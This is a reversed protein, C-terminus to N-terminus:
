EIDGQGFTEWEEQQATGQLDLNSKVGIAKIAAVGASGLRNRSLDLFELHKVDPSAALAAAGEDSITGHRLDLVKLRKLLGSKIIEEVGKDGVDACRLRLHTLSTLHPSRCIARLHSLNIYPEEGGELAHPHCYLEQLNKLSENRALRDLPYVWGHYLLLVRLKPMPLAVVRSAEERFHAMLHLVEIDPMQRAYAAVLSGSTHCSYPCWTESYDDPECGGFRFARLHRLQPWRALVNGSPAYDEEEEEGGETDAGEEYEGAEDYALGHVTLDHVFRLQPSKILRRALDVNLNGIEVHTLLGHTFRYPLWGTGPSWEEAVSRIEPHEAWDGIWEAAHKALLDAEQKHLKKREAAPLSERELAIQVQMFEGYPDGRETLFDAYASIAGMDFPNAQIAKELAESESINERVTTEIYGKGIKEKILKDAAKRAEDQSAYSKTQTQGTTGIKGYNVTVDKGAVDVNWFKHSRADSFQFTRM